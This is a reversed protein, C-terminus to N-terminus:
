AAASRVRRLRRPTTVSCGVHRRLRDRRRYAVLGKGPDADDPEAQHLGRDARDEDEGGRSEVAHHDDLERQRRGQGAREDGQMIGRLHQARRQAVPGIEAAPARRPDDAAHRNQRGAAQHGRDRRREHFILERKSDGERDDGEHHDADADARGARRQEDKDGLARGRRAARGGCRDGIDHHDDAEDDGGRDGALREIRERRGPEHGDGRRDGPAPNRTEHRATQPISPLPAASRAAPGVGWFSLVFAKPGANRWTQASGCARRKAIKM